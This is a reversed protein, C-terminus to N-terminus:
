GQLQPLASHHGSLGWPLLVCSVYTSMLAQGGTERGKGLHCAIVLTAPPCVPGKHESDLEVRASDM